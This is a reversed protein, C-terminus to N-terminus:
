YQMVYDDPNERHAAEERYQEVLSELRRIDYQLQEIERMVEQWEEIPVMAKTIPISNGSTFRAEIHKISM